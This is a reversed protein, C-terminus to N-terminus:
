SAEAPYPPSIPIGLLERHLETLLRLLLLQPNVNGAARTRADEIAALARAPRAPSIGRARVMRLLWDRGDRNLLTAEESIGLAALDRVWGELSILLEHLGRAGSSSFSLAQSFRAGSGSDLAARLLFFAQKRVEELPGPGEGEPLFGLARGISGESLSAAREIEEETGREMRRLFEVVRERPLPPISLAAARSRITPLLRGPESATLIFWTDSPPEELVKLLANAAEPSSEQAVLDEADAILFLRRSALAPRKSAERLLNRVTGFHLGQVESSVRSRLPESRIRALEEHRAEALAEQDREPSGKSPPRPIPFYWHIDPHELKLARRCSDCADCPGEPRSAECLLLQGTWLALRQKGVGKQGHFLLTTPLNGALLSGAIAKRPVEHGELPHLM